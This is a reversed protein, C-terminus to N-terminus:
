GHFNVTSNHQVDAQNCTSDMCAAACVNETRHVARAGNDNVSHQLYAYKGIKLSFILNVQGKCCGAFLPAKVGELWLVLNHTLSRLMRQNVAPVVSTIAAPLSQVCQGQYTASTSAKCKEPLRPPLKCGSLERNCRHTELRKM